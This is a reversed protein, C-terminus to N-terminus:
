ENTKKETEANENYNHIEVSFENHARSLYLEEAHYLLSSHEDFVRVDQFRIERIESNDSFSLVKGYYTNKTIYDRFVIIDNTDFAHEWVSQNDIRRTLKLKNALRFIWNKNNAKTLICALLVAFITSVIVNATPIVIEASSIYQIVNIPSCIFCPFLEKIIWFTIDTFTFSFLSYLIIKVFELYYHQDKHINLTHYLLIGIIGPILFVFYKQIFNLLDM